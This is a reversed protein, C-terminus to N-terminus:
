RKRLSFVASTVGGILFIIPLIGWLIPFIKGDFPEIPRPTNHFWSETIPIPSEWVTVFSYYKDGDQWGLQSGIPHLLMWGSNRLHMEAWQTGSIIWRVGWQEPHQLINFFVGYDENELWPTADITGIGSKRLLPNTRAQHYFGDVTEAGTLRSLRVLEPEGLGIALYKWQGHDNLFHVVEYEEWERLPKTLLEHQAPYAVANFVGAGLLVVVVTIVLLCFKQAAWQWVAVLSGAVPIVLLLAAVFAFREFTLTGALPGLVLQPFRTNGGLGLLMLFGIAAIVKLYQLRRIVVLVLPSLWLLGGYMDWFFMSAQQEVQFYAERSPHSIEAQPLGQTLYWWWFPLVAVAAAVMLIVGAVFLRRLHSWSPKAPVALFLFLVALNVISTHHNSAVATGALFFWALLDLREGKKIFRLLFTVAFLVFVIGAFAPLQGFTYLVVYVGSVGASLLAAVDAVQKDDTLEKTLLWLAVPLLVLLTAQVIVYASELSVVSGLLAILQHILPATVYVLFGGYWRTEWPDFWGQQYHSAFFLHMESDWNQAVFPRALLALNVMLTLLVAAALLKRGPM